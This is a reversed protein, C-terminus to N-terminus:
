SRDESEILMELLRRLELVNKTFEPERRKEMGGMLVTPAQDRDILRTGREMEVGKQEGGGGRTLSIM